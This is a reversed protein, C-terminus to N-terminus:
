QLFRRAYHAIMTADCVGDHMKRCRKPIFSHDPHMAKCLEMGKIKSTGKEMKGYMKPMWTMPTIEEHPLQLTEFMGLLKGYGKGYKFMSAAGQKVGHRAMAQAKEIAVVKLDDVYPLLKLRMDYLEGMVWYELLESKDNVVSFAGRAGPDVGIFIM